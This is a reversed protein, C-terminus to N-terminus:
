KTGAISLTNIRGIERTLQNQSLIITGYFEMIKVRCWLLYQSKQITNLCYFQHAKIILLAQRTSVLTMFLKMLLPKLLRACLTRNSEMWRPAPLCKGGGNAEQLVLNGAKDLFSVEGTSIIIKAQVNQTFLIVQAESEKTEWKVASRKKDDLMLSTETYFSDLPTASVHFINDAVVQIKILRVAAGKANAIRVIIGDALKIYDQPPTALM